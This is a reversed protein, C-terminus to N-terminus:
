LFPPLWPSGSSARAEKSEVPGLTVKALTVGFPPSFYPFGGGWFARLEPKPIITIQVSPKSPSRSSCEHAAQIVM